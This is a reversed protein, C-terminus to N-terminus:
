FQRTSAVRLGAAVPSLALAREIAEPLAPVYGASSPEFNETSFALSALPALAAMRAIFAQGRWAQLNNIEERDLGLRSGVQRLTHAVMQPAALRQDEPCLMGLTADVAFRALAQEIFDGQLVEPLMAKDNSDALSTRLSLVFEYGQEGLMPLWRLLPVPDHDNDPAVNLIYEQGSAELLCRVFNDGSQSSTVFLCHKRPIAQCAALIRELGTPQRTDIAIAISTADSITMQNIDPNCASAVRLSELWAYGYRQDPELHTGEAWENWANVFVLRQDPKDFRKKTERIASTAWRTFQAPTSNVWITGSVGRRATNDWSPCLGRYLTYPKPPCSVSHEVLTPWDYIRGLFDANTRYHETLSPLSSNNPPFEIAADFGYDEPDDSEFSQTYALHIEGLGNERCWERWRASTARPEPLLNPRYVLLLPKGDVRIYRPDCMYQAVHKIFALDDEPSHNQAILVDHDRGDWRRSWNENAWCLCFPLDLSPDSLYNRVPTELLRNGAFWYFYFCFGEIGYLKALEIQRRQVTTDRLDYYGLEGPVHPQYHRALQPRARRVNTWETFGKVWWADNEPIPHFQPLYFCILRAPKAAPPDASLLPIPTEPPPQLLNYGSPKIPRGETRGHAIYHWLPNDGSQAVDSYSILYYRTSFDPGPDRLLNAGIRLYHEAPSLGLLRVDPYRDTYWDADFYESAEIAQHAVV